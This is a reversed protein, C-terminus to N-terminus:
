YYYSRSRGVVKIRFVTYYCNYIETDSFESNFFFYIFFIYPGIAILLDYLNYFQTFELISIMYKNCFNCLLPITTGTMSFLLLWLFLKKDSLYSKKIVFSLKNLRSDILLPLIKRIAYCTKIDKM